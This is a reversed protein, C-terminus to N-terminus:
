THGRVSHEDMYDVDRVPCGGIQCMHSVATEKEGGWIAHSFSYVLDVGNLFAGSTWLKGDRAWRKEVWTTTPAQQRLVDLMFQPATATKGELIGAQLAVDVGACITLFASCEEWAKRVFSLEIENPTYAVNHAGILVIDLPPCSEFSDKVLM